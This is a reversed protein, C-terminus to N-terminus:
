YRHNDLRVKDSSDKCGLSCKIKLVMGPSLLARKPIDLKNKIIYRYLTRSSIGLESALEERTIFKMAHM